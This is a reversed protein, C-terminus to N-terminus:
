RRRKTRRRRKVPRGAGMLRGFWTVHNEIGFNQKLLLLALSHQQAPVSIHVVDDIILTTGLKMGRDKFLIRTDVYLDRPVVISRTWGMWDSFMMWAPTIWDASAGIALARDLADGRAM